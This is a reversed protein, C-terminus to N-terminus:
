VGRKRLRCYDEEKELDEKLTVLWGAAHGKRAQSGGRSGKDNIEGCIKWNTGRKRPGVKREERRAVSLL